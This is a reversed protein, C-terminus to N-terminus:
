FSDASLSKRACDLIALVIPNSILREPVIAFCRSVVGDLQGLVKCNYRNLLETAISAPLCFLGHGAEGFLKLLTSDAFEGRVYPKINNERFFLDLRQRFTSGHPPLLMPASELSRPFGKRFQHVLSTNGYVMVPSESIMYCAFESNTTPLGAHTEVLVMDFSKKSLQLAFDEELIDQCDISVPEPLESVFELAKLVLLRPISGVLGISLCLGRGKRRTALGTVLQNALGFLEDCLQRISEGQETLVLKHPGRTFLQTDLKSELEKIQRSVTPPSLLLHESGRRISGHSAVVWFYYLHHFNLRSLLSDHVEDAPLEIINRGNFVISKKDSPM